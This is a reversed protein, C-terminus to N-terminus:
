RQGHSTPKYLVKWTEPDRALKPPAAARLAEPHPLLEMGQVARGKRLVVLFAYDEGMTVGTRWEHDSALFSRGTSSKVELALARPEAGEYPALWGLMDCGFGDSIDSLHLFRALADMREDTDLSPDRAREAQPLLKEVAAGEWGAELLSQLAGVADDFAAPNEEMLALLPAMVAGLAWAEGQAGIRTTNRKTVKGVRVKKREGSGASGSTSRRSTGESDRYPEPAIGARALTDMSKRVADLKEHGRKKLAARVEALHVPDIDAVELLADADAMELAEGEPIAEVLAAGRGSLGRAALLASVAERVAGPNTVTGPVEQQYLDRLARLEHPLDGPASLVAVIPLEAAARWGLARQRLLREREAPALVQRWTRQWDHTPVGGVEALAEDIREPMLEDPSIDVGVARLDAVVDLLLENLGLGVRFALHEPVAWGRRRRQAEELPLKGVQTLVWIVKDGHEANWRRVLRRSAQLRLGTGGLAILRDHLDRLDVGSAQLIFLVGREDQRVEDGGGGDIVRRRREDEGWGALMLRREVEAVLGEKPLQSTEADCVDLLARWWITAREKSLVGARDLAQRIQALGAETVGREALFSTRGDGDEQFFLTFTDKFSPNEVLRAVVDGLRRRVHNDFWDPGQFDHFLAPPRGPKVELHLDRDAGEGVTVRIPVADGAPKVTLNLVVDDVRYVEMARIRQSRRAFDKSGIDLPRGGLSMHTLLAMIQSLREEDIFDAVTHTQAERQAVPAMECEVQFRAFGLQRAVDEEGVRLPAFPVKGLFHRRFESQSGDDHVVDARRNYALRAGLRSLVGTKDLVAQATGADTSRALQVYLMRHLGVFAQRATGSDLDVPLSGAEFQERLQALLGGLEGPEASELLHGGLAKLLQPSLGPAALPLFRRPNTAIRITDTPPDSMWWTDGPVRPTGPQGDVYVPVWAADVLQSALYSNPTGKEQSWHRHKHYSCRHCLLRARRLQKYLSAGRSLSRAMASPDSTAEVPWRLRYDTAIRVKAHPYSVGFWARRDDWLRDFWEARGPLDERVRWPDRETADPRLDAVIAEVPPIEWVGLRILFLHLLEKHLRARLDGALSGVDDPEGPLRMATLVDDRLWAVDDLNLDLLDALVAPAAIVAGPGPALMELDQYANGRARLADAALRDDGLPGMHTWEQSFCLETAPRWIGDAAPLPVSALAERRYVERRATQDQILDPACWFWSGPAFATRASMAAKVSYRSVSERLLLRWAFRAVAPADDDGWRRVELADLVSDTVFPRVGLRAAPGALLEPTLVSSPLFAIGLCSPVGLETGSADEGRIRAFLRVGEGRTDPPPPLFRRDSSGTVVPLFRADPSGRLGAAIENFWATHNTSAYELVNLLAEFGDDVDAPSGAWPPHDGPNLLVPLLGGEGLLPRPARSTLFRRADDNARLAPSPHQCGAQRKLYASPFASPLCEAVDAHEVLLINKPAVLGGGSGSVWAVEDLSELVSSYFAAALPDNSPHGCQGFLMPLLDTDIDPDRVVDFVADVVLRKLHDLLVQNRQEADPAFRTRGADVEFYAHLLLPLGTAISTPFFLHFCQAQLEPLAVRWSPRSDGVRHLRLGVAIEGSLNQREGVSREYLLWAAPSEGSSTLEVRRVSGGGQLQRLPTTRLRLDRVKNLLRDEVVVRNFADLLILIEEGLGDMARRVTELWRASTLGLREDFPLRVLTNFDCEDLRAEAETLPDPTDLWHPFRLVPLRANEDRLGKPDYTEVLERWSRGSAREILPETLARDFRVRLSFTQTSDDRSLIQPCPTVELVSKFGIGKHGIGTGARKSSEGFQCLHKFLGDANLAQGQNCVSLVPQEGHLIVRVSCRQDRSRGNAYWADRANQVLEIIFRGHYERRLLAEMNAFSSTTGVDAIEDHKAWRRTQEKVRM